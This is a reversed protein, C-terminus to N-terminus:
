NGDKVSFDFIQKISRNTVSCGPTNPFSYFNLNLLFAYIDVFFRVWPSPVTDFNHPIEVTNLIAVPPASVLLDSTM